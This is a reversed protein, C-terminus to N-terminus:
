LRPPGARVRARMEDPSGRWGNVDESWWTAGALRWPEVIGAGAEPDGPTQGSAVADFPGTSTRHRGIYRLIDRLDEPTLADPWNRAPYVGDFRAARRMPPRSPWFGGVWIPIRPSQLPRPKFEVEELTYHKGHHTVPEGSWLATVIDLGEDLREARAKPDSEEGFSSFEEPPNGLGVGMIVRGRSLHDLSAMERAVKWPRRRALPTIMAGIRIRSTRAAIAALTVTADGVPGYGQLHDWTFFGDWGSDEAEAALGVVTAPDHYDGFNPVNVCYRM